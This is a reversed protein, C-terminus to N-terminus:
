VYYHDGPQRTGVLAVIKASAVYSNPDIFNRKYAYYRILTLHHHGHFPQSVPNTCHLAKSHCCKACQWLTFALRSRNKTQM